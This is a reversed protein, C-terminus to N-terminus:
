DQLGSRRSRGIRARWEELEVSPRLSTAPPNRVATAWHRHKTRIAPSRSEGVAQLFRAEDDHTLAKGVDHNERGFTVEDAINMWVRYPKLIQRLVGIEYNITRESNGQERRTRQLEWVDQVNIDCVLRKGLRDSLSAFYLKYGRRTADSLGGKTKLWDEAAKSFLPFNRKRIGNIGMELERRRGREAERAVNKSGTKASERIRSGNFVFEFWYVGGRKFVSM